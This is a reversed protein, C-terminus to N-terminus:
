KSASSRTILFKWFCPFAQRSCRNTKQFGLKDCAYESPNVSNNIHFRMCPILTGYVLLRLTELIEVRRGDFLMLNIDLMWCFM